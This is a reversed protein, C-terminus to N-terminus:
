SAHRVLPRANDLVQGGQQDVLRMFVQQGAGFLIAWAIIQGSSDLATLGPVVEGRILLLGLVASLAGMPLKLLGLVVPVSFPMSTGRERRLGTVAAIAAGLLGVLELIAIDASQPTDGTPCVQEKGPTFCIPLLGPESAGVLALGAAALALVVTAVAILNRFSRVRALKRGAELNAERFASVVITREREDLQGARQIVTEAARRQPHDRPLNEVLLARVYPLEGRLQDASALELLAEEAARLNTNVRAVDAGTARAGVGTRGEAAARAEELHQGISRALVAATREDRDTTEHVLTARRTMSAIRTLADEEWAQRRSLGSRPAFIRDAIARFSLRPRSTAETSL